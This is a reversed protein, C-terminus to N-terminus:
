TFFKFGDSVALPTLPVETRVGDKTVKYRKISVVKKKRPRQESIPRVAADHINIRTNPNSKVM